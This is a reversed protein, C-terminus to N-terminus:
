FKNELAIIIQVFFCGFAAGLLFLKEHFLSSLIVGLVSWLVIIMYAMVEKKEM